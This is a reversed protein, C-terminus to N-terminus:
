LVHDVGEHILLVIVMIYAIALGLLLSV